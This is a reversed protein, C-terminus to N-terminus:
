PPVPLPDCRTGPDKGCHIKLEYSDHLKKVDDRMWSLNFVADCGGNALPWNHNAKYGPCSGFPLGTSPCPNQRQFESRVASSRVIRNNADRKPPGCYRHELYQWPEVAHAMAFFLAFLVFAYIAIGLWAMARKYTRRRRKM